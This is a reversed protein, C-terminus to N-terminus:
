TNVQPVEQVCVECMRIGHVCVCVCICECRVCSTISSHANHWLDVKQIEMQNFQIFIWPFFFIGRHYFLNGHYYSFWNGHHYFNIKVNTSILKEVTTFILKQPPLFWNRRRYFDIKM